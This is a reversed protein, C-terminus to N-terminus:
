DKVPPAKISELQILLPEILKKITSFESSLELFIIEANTLSQKHMKTPGYTSSGSAAWLYDRMRPYENQEGIQSRVKSGVIKQKLNLVKERINLLNSHLTTDLFQARDYAKLM